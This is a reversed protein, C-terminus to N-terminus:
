ERNGERAAGPDDPGGDVDNLFPTEAAADREELAKRIGDHTKADLKYGFFALGGFLTFIIPAFLYCMELGFIAEPTNHAEDSAQFGVWALIPFIIIQTLSAGFKQTIGIISYLLSVQEKNQELKVEDAVDAVMARVLLVFASACFGVCFMGIFTPLFLAKPVIMLSTQAIAYCIVALQATRHKGLKRAIAAWAPAGFLGAGIYPILLVSVAAADFGKADRFFFAYIPGTTGPGLVFCLDAIILRAMTPRALAGFVDAMTKSFAAWSFAAKAGATKLVREPVTFVVIAAMIPLLILLFNGITPVSAASAPNIAKNTLLPMASLGVAGLVAVAQMWGYVRSREHYATALNAAWASHALGTISTGAYLVLLSIMIYGTTVGAPANFMMYVGAMLVPVGLVMWLKYRGFPSRTRDMVLAILPDFPIDILRVLSLTAAWTVLPVGLHGTFYKPMYTGLM